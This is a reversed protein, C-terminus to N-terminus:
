ESHHDIGDFDITVTGVSCEINIEKEAQNDFTRETGLGSYSREGCIVEGISCEIDYNYDKEYGAAMYVIEGVGCEIDIQQEAAGAAVISGADCEFDAELAEFTDIIAEGAGVYISLKRACIDELYLNGASLDLSAEELQMKRPIYVNISGVGVNNLHFLRDKTELKLENGDMYCQFGLDKSIGITEVVVESDNSAYINLEGAFVDVDIERVDTYSKHIDEALSRASDTKDSRIWGIGNPFRGHLMDTTVGMGWAVACCALGIIMVVGCIIWFMKWGRRM